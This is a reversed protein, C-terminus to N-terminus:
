GGQTARVIEIVDNNHLTATPWDLRRVVEGNLAIAIGQEPDSGAIERILGPIDTGVPLTRTEGNIHVTIM